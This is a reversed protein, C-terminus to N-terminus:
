GASDGRKRWASPTMGERARFSKTFHSADGFGVELAIETVSRATSALLRKAAELRIRILYDWPAVGTAKRFLDAFHGPSLYVRHAIQDLYLEGAYEKEMVAIAQQIADEAGAHHSATEPAAQRQAHYARALLVLLEVFRARVLQTFGVPQTALESLMTELTQEIAVRASIGLHLRDRFGREQRLLPELLFFQLLGPVEKLHQYEHAVVDPLFLVNILDLDQNGAYAHSEGPAILFCDGPVVIQPQGGGHVQHFGQGHAVYVLEVFDHTHPPVAEVQRTREVWLPFGPVPLTDASAYHQKVYLYSHVQPFVEQSARRRPM